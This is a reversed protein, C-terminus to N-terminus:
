NSPSRRTAYIIKHAVTLCYGPLRLLVRDNKAIQPSQKYAFAMSSLIDIVLPIMECGVPRLCYIMLM